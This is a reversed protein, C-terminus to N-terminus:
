SDSMVCAMTPASHRHAVYGKPLLERGDARFESPSSGRLSSRSREYNPRSQRVFQGRQKRLIEAIRERFERDNVVGNDASKRESSKSPPAVEDLVAQATLHRTTQLKGVGTAER